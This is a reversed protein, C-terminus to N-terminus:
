GGRWIVKMRSYTIWSTSRPKMLFFLEDVHALGM